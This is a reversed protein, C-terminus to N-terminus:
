DASAKATPQMSKNHGIVRISAIVTLGKETPLVRIFNEKPEQGDPLGTRQEAQIYGAKELQQVLYIKKSSELYSKPIYSGESSQSLFTLADLSVGLWELSAENLVTVSDLIAEQKESANSTFSISSIFFLAVLIRKM